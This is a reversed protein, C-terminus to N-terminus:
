YIQPPLILINWFEKGFIKQYLKIQMRAKPLDNELIAKPIVGGLSGSLGILGDGYKALVEDDIRPKYYFGEMAAITSLKM